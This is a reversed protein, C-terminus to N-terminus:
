RRLPNRDLSFSGINRSGEGEVVGDDEGGQRAGPTEDGGSGDDDSCCSRRRLPGGFAPMMQRQAPRAAPAKQGSPALASRVLSASCGATVGSDASGASIPQTSSCAASPRVTNAASSTPSRQPQDYERSAPSSLAHPPAHGFRLPLSEVQSFHSRNRDILGRNVSM